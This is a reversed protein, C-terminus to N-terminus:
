SKKLGEVLEYLVGRDILRDIPANGVQARRGRTLSAIASLSARWALCPM